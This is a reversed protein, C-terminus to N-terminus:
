KKRGGPNNGSYLPPLAPLLTQPERRTKASGTGHLKVENECSPVVEHRLALVNTKQKSVAKQLQDVEARASAINKNNISNAIYPMAAILATLGCALTGGVAKMAASNDRDSIFSAGVAGCLLLAQVFVAKSLNCGSNDSTFRPTFKKSSQSSSGDLEFNLRDITNYLSALQEAYDDLTAGAPTSSQGSSYFVYDDPNQKFYTIDEPAEADAHQPGAHRGARKILDVPKKIAWEYVHRGMWAFVGCAAVAGAAAFKNMGGIVRSAFIGAMVTAPTKIALDQALMAKGDSKKLNDSASPRPLADSDACGMGNVYKIHPVAERSAPKKNPDTACGFLNLKGHGQLGSVRSPKSLMDEDIVATEFNM